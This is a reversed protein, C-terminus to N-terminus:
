AARRFRDWTLVAMTRNPAGMKHMARRALEESTNLNVDLLRSALKLNGTEALANMVRQQSPTLNWPTEPHHIM